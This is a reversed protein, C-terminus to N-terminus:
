KKRSARKPQARDPLVQDANSMEKWPDQKLKALRKNLNEVTFGNPKLAPSLEEWAVPTSVPAGPRSRTSYPAIASAERNNRLYDIFIRGEREQKISTTTYRDPEDAAM